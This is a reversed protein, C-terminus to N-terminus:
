RSFLQRSEELAALVEDRRPERSDMVDLLSLGAPTPDAEVQERLLAWQGAMSLTHFATTAKVARRYHNKLIAHRRISVRQAAM